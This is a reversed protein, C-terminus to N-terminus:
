LHPLASRDDLLHHGDFYYVAPEFTLQHSSLSASSVTEERATASVMALARKRRGVSPRGPQTPGLPKSFVPSTSGGFSTVLGLV